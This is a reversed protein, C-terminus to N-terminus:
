QHLGLIKQPLRTYRKKGEEKKEICTSSTSLHVYFASICNCKYVARGECM